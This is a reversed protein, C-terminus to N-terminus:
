SDAESGPGQRGHQSATSSGPLPQGHGDPRTEACAAIWVRGEQVQKGQAERAQKELDKERERGIQRKNTNRKTGKEWTQQVM